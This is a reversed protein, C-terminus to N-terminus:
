ILNLYKCFSTLDYYITEYSSVALYFIDLNLKMFFSLYKINLNESIGFTLLIEGEIQM